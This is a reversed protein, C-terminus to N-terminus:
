SKRELKTDVQQDEVDIENFVIISQVFNHSPSLEVKTGFICYLLCLNVKLTIAIGVLSTVSYRSKHGTAFVDLTFLSIPCSWPVLQPVLTHLIVIPLVM